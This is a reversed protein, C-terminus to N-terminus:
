RGLYENDKLLSFMLHCRLMISYAVYIRLLAGKLLHSLFVIIYLIEWVINTVERSKFFPTFTVSKCYFKKQFLM